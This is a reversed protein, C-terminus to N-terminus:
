QVSSKFERGERHYVRQVHAVIDPISRDDTLVETGVARYVPMRQDLMEKIRALPDDVNLLPRNKNGQTRQLITEARATLCVVVGRQRLMESMGEQMVLGGGCSVVCGKAPHGSEVFERELRRFAEEGQEEFIATIPKGAKAEIAADSDILQMGMRTALTRGVATKGTGMFGVLYLNVRETGPHAKSM